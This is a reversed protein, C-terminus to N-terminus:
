FYLAALVSLLSGLVIFYSGANWLVGKSGTQEGLVANLAGAPAAVSVASLIGMITMEKDLYGRCDKTDIKM